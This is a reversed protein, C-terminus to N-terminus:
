RVQLALLFASIFIEFGDVFGCCDIFVEGRRVCEKDSSENIKVFLWPLVLFRISKLSVAEEISCFM